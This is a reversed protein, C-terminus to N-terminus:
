PFSRAPFEKIYQDKYADHCQKCAAKVACVTAGVTIPAATNNYIEMQPNAFTATVSSYTGAPVSLSGLLAPETQLHELEVEMPKAVLPVDTNTGSNHITASSIQVEFSVIAVGTPPTDQVSVTVPVSAGTATLSSASNSSCSVLAFAALMLLVLFVPRKM